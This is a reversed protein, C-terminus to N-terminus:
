VTRRDTLVRVISGLGTVGLVKSYVFVGIRDKKLQLIFVKEHWTLLASSSYDKPNEFGKYVYKMLTDRLPVPISNVADSIDNTKIKMMTSLAM